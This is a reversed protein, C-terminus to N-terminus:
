KAATTRAGLTKAAEEQIVETLCRFFYGVDGVVGEIDDALDYNAREEEVEIDHLSYIYEKSDLYIVEDYRHFRIRRQNRKKSKKARPIVPNKTTTTVAAEEQANSMVIINCRGFFDDGNRASGNVDRDDPQLGSDSSLSSLLNPRRNRDWSGEAIDTSGRHKSSQKNTSLKETAAARVLRLSSRGEQPSPSNM